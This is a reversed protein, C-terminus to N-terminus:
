DSNKEDSDIITGIVFILYEWKIHLLFKNKQSKKPKRRPPVELM